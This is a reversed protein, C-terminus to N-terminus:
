RARAECEPCRHAGKGIFWGSKSAIGFLDEGINRQTSRAMRGDHGARVMSRVALARRCVDCLLEISYVIM